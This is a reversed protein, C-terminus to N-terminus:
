GGSRVRERRARETAAHCIRCTRAGNKSWTYTSEPTYEHGQPCHTLGLRGHIRGRSVCDASNEAYSGARLHTPECCPPNDCSHLILKGAPVPRNNALEWALRHVLVAKGNVGIQGYGKNNTYKTWELCGNPQRVLRRQLRETVSSRSM